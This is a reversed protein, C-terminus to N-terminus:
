PLSQVKRVLSKPLLAKRRNFSKTKRFPIYNYCVEGFFEYNEKGEQLNEWNFWQKLSKKDKIKNTYKSTLLIYNYEPVTNKLLKHALIVDEGLLKTRGEIKAISTLGTHVIIKLGLQNDALYKM